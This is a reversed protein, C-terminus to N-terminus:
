RMARSSAESPLRGGHLGVSDDHEVVMPPNAMGRKSQRWGTNAPWLIQRAPDDQLMGIRPIVLDPARPAATCMTGEVNCTIHWSVLVDNSGQLMAVPVTGTLPFRSRRHRRVSRVTQRHHMNAVTRYSSAMRAVLNTCRQSYASLAM